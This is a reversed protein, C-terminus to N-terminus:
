EVAAVAPFSIRIGLMSPDAYFRKGRESEKLTITIIEPEKLEGPLDVTVNGQKEVALTKEWDRGRLLISFPMFDLPTEIGFAVSRRRESERSRLVIATPSAIWGQSHESIIGIEKDSLLAPALDQYKALARELVRYDGRSLATIHGTKLELDLKWVRDLDPTSLGWLFFALLSGYTLLVAAFGPSPLTRKPTTMEDGRGAPQVVVGPSRGM